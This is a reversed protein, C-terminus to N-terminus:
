QKGMPLLAIFMVKMSGDLGFPSLRTWFSGKRMDLMRDQEVVAASSTVKNPRTRLLPTLM